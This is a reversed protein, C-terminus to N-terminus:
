KPPLVIFGYRKYVQVAPPAALAAALARGAAVTRALPAMVYVIRPGTERPVEFAVQVRKSLAADTRYVIAAPVNESEVAALAARVNLTPVVRDAVRAWLGQAELYQRAYVGAPVAQPDALALRSFSAIEAPAALTRPAGAPVVVVLTNSLVDHRDAARVLGAKEVTDMQAADASFFVDAPAGARIQRALDSSAGFNFAVKHRSSAEFARGIESVADALSAAAFVTIEDAAAPGGATLSAVLVAALLTSRGIM